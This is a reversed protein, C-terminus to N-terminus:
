VIVVLEGSGIEGSGVKVVTNDPKVERSVLQYPKSVRIVEAVGPLLEFAGSDIEGTNGTIGIAIRQAGPIPHAKYGLSEIVQVVNRVNEETAQSQMTILM